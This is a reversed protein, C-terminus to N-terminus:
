SHGRDCCTGRDVLQSNKDRTGQLFHAKCRSGLANRRNERSGMKWANPGSQTAHREDGSGDDAAHPRAAGCCPDVTATKWGYFQCFHAVIACFPTTHGCFRNTITWEFWSLHTYGSSVNTACCNLTSTCPSQFTHCQRGGSGSGILNHPEQVRPRGSRDNLDLMLVPMCRTPLSMLLGDTWKYVADLRKGGLHQKVGELHSPPPLYLVIFCFHGLGNKVVVAGCRGSLPLPPCCVRRLHGQRFWRSSFLWSM